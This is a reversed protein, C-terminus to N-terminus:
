YGCLDDLIGFQAVPAMSARQRKMPWPTDLKPEMMRALCDLMDDHRMVPFALYEEEIFDHILNHTKGLHDTYVIEEPMWVRGNQFAPILRRIRDPKATIGGVEQIAFRYSRLNMESKIHEIDSQMGYKEYRVQGPKWKRHLRFLADTRETLNLRDRICDLIYYNEDEGLGIVWMTTFDNTKRKEGAPDVLILRYMNKSTVNQFHNLWGRKFEAGTGARPRQQFLAEWERPPLTQKIQLLRELPFDEEWLAKPADSEEDEIAMMNLLEWGEHTHERLVWGALDDEHWRTQIIVIAGGKMLRTYAVASYWAKLKERMTESDAEERDKIPDDILMLHAGRGTASGGVGVATYVGQRDAVNFKNQASSDESLRTEPFVAAYLEDKIQNRIKRGFMDVLEQSYSAHIIANDPHQGLYWAPFFESALMSKGHRPPMTIILRKCEGRAVRELADALKRHHHSPRYGPWMAIAYGILKKRCLPILDRRDM